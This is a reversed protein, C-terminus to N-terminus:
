TIEKKMSFVEGPQTVIEFFVTLEVSSNDNDMDFGVQHVKVRDDWKEITRKVEESFHFKLSEFQMPEGIIGRLSSAFDPLMVRQGQQTSLINNMSTVVADLDTVKKIDGQSDLDLKNDIDSWVELAM